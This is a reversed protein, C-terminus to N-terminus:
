LESLPELRGAAATVVDKLFASSYQECVLVPIGGADVPASHAPGFWVALSVEAVQQDCDAALREIVLGGRNGDLTFDAVAARVAELEVDGGVALRFPRRRLRGALDDLSVPLGPPITAPILECLPELVFRRYWFHPHPVTLTESDVCQDGCLILDLDLTRPGWHTQRVRGCRDETQQLVALLEEPDLSTDFVCAANWFSDGAASGMPDSRYLRSGRLGNVGSHEALEACARRLHAPVDGLNGGMAVAAGTM